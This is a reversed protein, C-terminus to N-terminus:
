PSGVVVALVPPLAAEPPRPRDIWGMDLGWAVLRADIVPPAEWRELLRRAMALDGARFALEALKVGDAPALAPDDLAPRAVEYARGWAGVGAYFWALLATRAAPPASAVLRHRREADALYEAVDAAAAVGQTRELNQVLAAALAFDEARAAVPVLVRQESCDPCRAAIERVLALAHPDDGLRSALRAELSAFTTPLGQLVRAAESQSPVEFIAQGEPGLLVADRRARLDVVFRRLALLRARDLDPTIIMLAEFANALLSGTGFRSATGAAERRAHEAIRLAARPRSARREEVVFYELAALYRPSREVEYTWLRRADGFDLTRVVSRMGLLAIVAAAFSYGVGRGLVGSSRLAIGGLWALGFMPLYTLRPSVVVDNVVAAANSVPFLLLPFAALGLVWETRNRRLYAILTCVSLWLGGIMAFGINVVRMGDEVVILSSGFSLDQPWLAMVGYRGYTELVTGLHSALGPWDGGGRVPLWWQRWAIYGLALALQPGVSRLLERRPLRRPPPWGAHACVEIGALLPLVVAHEKSGYAVAAGLVELPWGWPRRELRAAVGALALLVGLSLWLDPRGAIWAVSESKTPHVAWLLAAFLAPWSAGIWRRLTFFALASATGHCLLNTAHFVLPTGGGLAWDLTYSALVLPRWFNRSEGYLDSEWSTSWFSHTFWRTWQTFDHVFPNEVILPHDDFLWPGDLAPAFVAVAVTFVIGALLLPRPASSEAEATSSPEKVVRDVSDAASRGPLPFAPAGRAGRRRM